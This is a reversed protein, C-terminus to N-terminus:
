PGWARMSRRALIASAPAPFESESPVAIWTIVGVETSVIFSVGIALGGIFNHVGDALLILYTVPAKADAELSHGHHWSLFQEM